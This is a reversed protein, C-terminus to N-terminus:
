MKRRLVFYVRKSDDEGIHGNQDEATLVEFYKGVTNRIKEVPLILEDITTRVTKTGNEHTFTWRFIDRSKQSIVLSVKGDDIRQTWPALTTLHKVRGITNIDLLFIGDKELHASVHHFTQKWLDVRLLHNISDYVSYIVDFKKNLSFSAMNKLHFTIGPFKERAIRIMSESIDLGEIYYKKVFGELVNGTGCGLELLAKAHPAYRNIYKQIRAINQDQPDELQDYFQSYIRYTDVNNNFNSNDILARNSTLYSNKWQILAM